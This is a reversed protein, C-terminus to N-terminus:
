GSKECCRGVADPVGPANFWPAAPITGLQMLISGSDYYDSSWAISEGEIKFLTLAYVQFLFNIGDPAMATILQDAITYDGDVFGQRFYRQVGNTGSLFSQVFAEIDQGQVSASASVDGYTGDPAYLAAIKRAAEDSEWAGVWELVVKPVDAAKAVKASLGSALLGAAMGGVGARRLLDRRSSSELMQFM